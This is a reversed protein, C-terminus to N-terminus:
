WGPGYYQYALILGISLLFFIGPFWRKVPYYYFGAHFPAFALAAIIWNIFTGRVGGVVPLIVAVLLLLLVLSWGKRVQILMKRLNDQVYYGGVLFPIVLAFMAMALWLSQKLVPLNFSFGPLIAQWSWGDTLVLFLAVFYYPTTAGFLCIFWENPRFPRMIMLAFFVWLLLVVGPFYFFSIVGVGLGVNFITNRVRQQTYINFCGMLVPILLTNAVLGASLYNWEPILSTIVLYSMATLFNTKGIMRFSNVLRNLMLAQVFLLAFALVPYWAPNRDGSGVLFRVMGTFFLGDGPGTVPAHPLLFMPLKLLIGFPLLLLINVPNKQRFLGIM